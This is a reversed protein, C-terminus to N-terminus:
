SDDEKTPKPGPKTPELTDSVDDVLDEVNSFPTRKEDHFTERDRLPKPPKPRTKEDDRPKNPM